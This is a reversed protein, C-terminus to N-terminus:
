KSALLQKLAGFIVLHVLFVSLHIDVQLSFFVFCDVWGGDIEQFFHEPSIRALPDSGLLREFVDVQCCLM